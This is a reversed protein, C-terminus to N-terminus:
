IVVHAQFGYAKTEPPGTHGTSAGRRSAPRHPEVDQKRWAVLAFRSKPIQM